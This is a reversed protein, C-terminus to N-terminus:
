EDEDDDEHCGFGAQHEFTLLGSRPSEPNTCVGWDMGLRGDLAAYYRCSCCDPYALQDDKWRVVNGWPNYDTPLVKVISLLHKHHSSDTVLNDDKDYNSFNINNSLVKEGYFYLIGRTGDACRVPFFSKTM